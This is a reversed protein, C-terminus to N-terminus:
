DTKVPLAGHIVILGYRSHAQCLFGPHIGGPDGFGPSAVAKANQRQHCTLGFADLEARADDIGIRARWCCQRLVEGSEVLDGTSAHDNAQAGAAMTNDLVPMTHRKLGREGAQALIDLNDTHNQSPLWELISALHKVQLSAKAQPELRDTGTDGNENRGQSGFAHFLGRANGVAPHRDQNWEWLESAGNLMEALENLLSAAVRVTDRHARRATHSHGVINILCPLRTLGVGGKVDSVHTVIIALLEDAHAMLLGDGHHPM